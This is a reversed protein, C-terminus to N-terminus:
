RAPRGRRSLLGGLVLLATAIALVRPVWGVGARSLAGPEDDPAPSTREGPGAGDPSPADSPVVATFSLASVLRAIQSRTANPAAPDLTVSLRVEAPEGPEVVPGSVVDGPRVPEDNFSVSLWERLDAGGPDTSDDDFHLALRAPGPGHHRVLFTSSLHGDPVIQADAFLEPPSPAWTHGDLSFALEPHASAGAAPPGVVWTPLVMLLGAVIAVVLRNM